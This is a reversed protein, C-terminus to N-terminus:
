LLEMQLTKPVLPHSAEFPKNLWVWLDKKLFLIHSVLTHLQGIAWSISSLFKLYALLLYTIMAVWLQALVANRSTGIFSKIKLNQKITKYFIEIQWREKYLSAITVASLHFINTLIEIAKGTEPDISRIRRLKLPCKQKSYYGTYMITWDSTIYKYKSVNRREVVKYAADSKMRTVFYIGEKCYSAYREYNDFGRDFLVIDGKSFSYRGAHKQDNDAANSVYMIEPLYGSHNLKTHLKIGGKKKRFKAWNFVSLCLDIVTSDISFLPNKFRFSHKMARGRVFSLLSYFTEELIHHSRHNHAYALTSRSIIRLGLHYLRNAVSSLTQTISRLSDLGTLQAFLLSVFYQWCSLGKAHKDGHYTKVAKEFKYRPILQLLQAMITSNKKM